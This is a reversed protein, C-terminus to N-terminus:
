ATHHFRISSVGQLKPFRDHGSSYVREEDSLEEEAQQPGSGAAKLGLVVSHTSYLKMASDSGLHLGKVGM